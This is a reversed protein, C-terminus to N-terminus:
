ETEEVIVALLFLLIGFAAPPIDYTGVCNEPVISVAIEIGIFFFLLPERMEANVAHFIDPKQRKWSHSFIFVLFFVQGCPLRFNEIHEGPFFTQYFQATDVAKRIHHKVAESPFNDQGRVVFRVKKYIDGYFEARREIRPNSRKSPLHFYQGRFFNDIPHTIKELLRHIHIFIIPLHLIM